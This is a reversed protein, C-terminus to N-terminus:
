AARRASWHPKAVDGATRHGTAVITVVRRDNGRDNSQKMGLGFLRGVWQVDGDHATGATAALAEAFRDMQSLSGKRNRPM